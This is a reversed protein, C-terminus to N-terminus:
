QLKKLISKAKQRYYSDSKAIETFQKIAKEKEEMKIYCLGLYWKAQEIYLNDNHEIVKSFSKMAKVYEAIEFYSIGSYLQTTMKNPNSELAKEFLIVAEYYKQSQYLELASRLTRDEIISGSRNISTIEYPQYYKQVIKQSSRLWFHNVTSLGLVLALSAAVAIRTIRKFQPKPSKYIDPALQDHIERLQMRLEMLETDALAADVKKHLNLEEQLGPNNKLDEEFRFATLADLEGELYKSILHRNKNM